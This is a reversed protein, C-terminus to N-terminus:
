VRSFCSLLLSVRTGEGSQVMPSVRAVETEISIGIGKRRDWDSM